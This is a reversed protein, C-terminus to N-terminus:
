FLGPLGLLRIGIFNYLVLSLIIFVLGSAASTIIAQGEKIKDPNGASTTLNFFGYVMLLLAIGSGISVALKLIQEFFSSSGFIDYNLTGLATDCTTAGTDCFTAAQVANAFLISLVGLMLLNSTLFLFFRRM